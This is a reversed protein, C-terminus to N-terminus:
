VYGKTRLSNIQRESMGGWWGFMIHNKVAYDLCEIRVPCDSCFARIKRGANGADPFFFSADM